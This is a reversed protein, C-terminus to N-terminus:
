PAFRAFPVSRDAVDRLGTNPDGGAFRLIDMTNEFTPGLLSEGPMGGRSIGDAAQLGFDGLGLLGSRAVTHRAYDMAGWAAPAGGTLAFKGMDAAFMVPMTLALISWPKMNDNAAEKNARKLVVNHMAFTFQKLHGFLVFRPDSMWLPRNSASPRLVAQDVFRYMAEATRDNLVLRGDPGVQIDSAKLGLEDMAKADGKKAILYREGAATAAIRMSNNWGQLGNYKFFTENIRKVAGSQYQAGYASGMAELVTDQSIIGLMRALDEGEAKQGTLRQLATGYAKLADGVSGTRAALVIPDVMQSALALPMITLNQWTQLATMLEKTSRSWEGPNLSGELGQVVRSIEELDEQKYVGSDSVLESIVRGDNGFSRAYEARHVAQRIYNMTTDTLDKQQFKAFSEANSENIFTMLRQNTSPAYPQFGLQVGEQPPRKEFGNILRDAMENAQKRNVKGTAVLAALFDERERTIAHPDWMRPFFNKVERLPIWKGAEENYTQVGAKVQYDHLDKFLQKMAKGLPTVPEKQSALEDRAERRQVATTGKLIDELANKYVGERQFRRQVFGLDGRESSFLDALRTLHSNNYSRLRDPAAEFLVKTMKNVAPLLREIKSHLREGEAVNLDALVEAATSPKSFRGDHLATLLSEARSEKSIVGFLDRFFNRIKEFVSNNKDSLTLDGNAWFQYMYAVREADDELQAKAEPHKDLLRNLQRNIHPAHTADVLDKKLGRLQKNEDLTEFFDHMSEHWATGLPDAANIALEILRNKKNSSITYKGSGGLDKVLQEYKVEVDPGRTRAIEDTLIKKVRELTDATPATGGPLEGIKSFNVANRFMGQAAKMRQELAKRVEHTEGPSQSYDLVWSTGKYQDPDMFEDRIKMALRIQDNTLNAVPTANLREFTDLSNHIFAAVKDATNLRDFRKKPDTDLVAGIAREMRVQKDDAQVRAWEGPAREAYGNQRLFDALGREGINYDRERDARVDSIITANAKIAKMVESRDFDIRGVRNGEVSVFVRDEANYSGTNAREGWAKAYAATSSAASGRGIFKTAKDSKAQDKATYRGTSHLRVHFAPLDEFGSPRDRLEKRSELDMDFLEDDLMQQLHDNPQYTGNLISSIVKQQEAEYAAERAMREARAKEPAADLAALEAKDEFHQQAKDMARRLRDLQANNEESPRELARKEAARYQIRANRADAEANEVTDGRRTDTRGPIERTRQEPTLVSSGLFNLQDDVADMRDAFKQELKPIGKAARYRELQVDFENELEQMRVAVNRGQPSQINTIDEAFAINQAIESQNFTEFDFGITDDEEEDAVSNDLPIRTEIERRLYDNLVRERAKAAYDDFKIKTLAIKKGLRMLEDFVAEEAEARLRIQDSDSLGEMMSEVTQTSARDAMTGFVAGEVYRRKENDIFRQLSAKSKVEDLDMAKKKFADKRARKAKVSDPIVSQKNAPNLGNPSIDKWTTDTGKDDMHMITDPTLGEFRDFDPRAMIAAMSDLVRGAISGNVRSENFLSDGSVSRKSGDKFIVNFKTQRIRANKAATALRKESSGVKPNGEQKLRKGFKEFEEDSAYTQDKDQMVVDYLDLAKAVGQEYANNQRELTRRLGPLMTRRPDREELQELAMIRRRTKTLDSTRVGAAANLADREKTLRAINETKDENSKNTLRKAMADIRDSHGKKRQDMPVSELADIAAKISKPDRAMDAKLRRDLDRRIRSLAFTPSENTQAIYERMTGIRADPGGAKLAEDREADHVGRMFPRAPTRDRYTATLERADQETLAGFETGPVNREDSEGINNAADLDDNFQYAGPNTDRYYFDLVQLAKAESGYIVSLAALATDQEAKDATDQEAKDAMDATYFNDVMQALRTYAKASIKERNAEPIQQFLFTDEKQQGNAGTIDSEALSLEKIRQLWNNREGTDAQTRDNLDKALAEPDTFMPLLDKANMLVKMDDTTLNGTRASLAHLSAALMPIKEGIDPVAKAEPTMHKYVRQYMDAKEERSSDMLSYRTLVRDQASKKAETAADKAPELVKDQMATLAARGAKAAEGTWRKMSEIFRDVAEMTYQGSRVAILHARIYDQDEPNSYDGQMAEVRERVSKPIGDIDLLQQAYMPIRAMRKADRDQMATMPDAASLIEPSQDDPLSDSAAQDSDRNLIRAVKQPGTLTDDKLADRARALTSSLSDGAKKAADLGRSTLNRVDDGYKEVIDDYLGRANEVLGPAKETATDAVTTAASTAADKAKTWAPTVRDLVPAARSKLAELAAGGPAAPAGHGDLVAMGGGGIVGAAFNDLGQGVDYQRNPDYQRQAYQSIADQALETGGEVAMAGFARGATGIRALAGPLKGGLALYAPGLSELAAQPISSLGSLRLKDRDSLQRLVPDAEITNAEANRIVDYSGAFSGGIAGLAARAGGAGKALMGGVLPEAMSAAAMGFTNPIYNEWDGKAIADRFGTSGINPTAAQMGQRFALEDAAQRVGAANGLARAKTLRLQEAGVSDAALTALASRQFNGMGAVDNARRTALSAASDSALSALPNWNAAVPLTSLADDDYLKLFPSPM